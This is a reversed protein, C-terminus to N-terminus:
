NLALLTDAHSSFDGLFHRLLSPLPLLEGFEKLVRFNRRKKRFFEGSVPCGNRASDMRTGIRSLMRFTPFTIKNLSHIIYAFLKMWVRCERSVIYQLLHTGVTKNESGCLRLNGDIACKPFDHSPMIHYSQHPTTRSSPRVMVSPKFSLLNILRFALPLSGEFSQIRERGEGVPRHPYSPAAARTLVTGAPPEIGGVEVSRPRPPFPLRLRRPLSPTGRQDPSLVWAPELGTTRMM